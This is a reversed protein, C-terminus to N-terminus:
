RRALKKFRRGPHAVRNEVLNEDLAKGSAFGGAIRQAYLRPAAWRGVAIEHTAVQLPDEVSQVVQGIKADRRQIQGGNEVTGAVVFVVGLIIEHHIRLEPIQFQQPLQHISAM